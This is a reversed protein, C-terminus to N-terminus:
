YNKDYTSCTSNNVNIRVNWIRNISIKNRNWQIDFRKLKVFNVNFKFHYIIADFERRKFDDIVNYFVRKLNFHIQWICNHNLTFIIFKNHFSIQKCVHRSADILTSACIIQCIDINILNIVFTEFLYSKM